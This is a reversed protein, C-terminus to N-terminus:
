QVVVPTFETTTFSYLMPPRYSVNSLYEGTPKIFDLKKFMKHFNGKDMSPDVQERYLDYIQDVTFTNGILASVHDPSIHRIRHSLKNLSDKVDSSVSNDVIHWKYSSDNESIAWYYINIDGCNDSSKVDVLELGTKLGLTDTLYRKHNEIIEDVNIGNLSRYLLKDNYSFITLNIKNM